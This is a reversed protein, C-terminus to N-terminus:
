GLFGIMDMNYINYSILIKRIKRTFNIWRDQTNYQEGVFFTSDTIDRDFGLGCVLNM